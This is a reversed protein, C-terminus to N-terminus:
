HEQLVFSCKRPACFQVASERLKPTGYSLSRRAKPRPLCKEADENGRPGVSTNEHQGTVSPTSHQLPLPVRIAVSVSSMGLQARVNNAINTLAHLAKHGKELSAFCPQRCVFCNVILSNSYPRISLSSSIRPTQAQRAAVRPESSEGRIAGQYLSEM